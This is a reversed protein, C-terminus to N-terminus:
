QKGSSMESMIMDVAEVFDSGVNDWTRHAFRNQPGASALKARIGENILLTNIATRLMAPDGPKVLVADEGDAFIEPIAGAASTIVPLGYAAAELAAIGFGEHLTPLVFVDAESKLENLLEHNVHGLINIKDSLEYEDIKKKILSTYEPNIKDDGAINLEFDTEIDKLAELLVHYGKREELFGVSLLKLTENNPSSPRPTIRGIGPYVISIRQRDFGLASIESATFESNAIAFDAQRIYLTEFYKEVSSSIGAKLPHILHHVLAIIRKGLKRRAYRLAPGQRKHMGHTSLIVPYDHAERFLERYASWASTGHRKNEPLDQETHVRVDYGADRLAEVVEYHYKEGGTKVPEYNSVLFLINRDLGAM